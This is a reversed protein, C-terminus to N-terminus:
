PSGEFFFPAQSGEDLEPPLPIHFYRAATELAARDGIPFVGPRHHAGGPPVRRMGPYRLRGRHTGDAEKCWAHAHWGRHTSHYELCALVLLDDAVPTTLIAVFNQKAAHYTVLLQYSHGECELNMVRWRWGPAGVRFSRAKSLRFKGGTKPMRKNSWSGAEIVTKKARIFDRLTM